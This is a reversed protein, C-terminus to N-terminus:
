EQLRSPIAQRIVGGIVPGTCPKQQCARIQTLATSLAWGLGDGPETYARITLDCGGNGALRVRLIHFNRSKDYSMLKVTDSKVRRCSNPEILVLPKTRWADEFVTLRSQNPREMVIQITLGVDEICYAGRNAQCTRPASPSVQADVHQCGVTALTIALPLFRM